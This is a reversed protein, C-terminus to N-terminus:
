IAVPAMISSIRVAPPLPPLEAIAPGPINGRSALWDMAKLSVFFSVAIIAIGLLISKLSVAPRM